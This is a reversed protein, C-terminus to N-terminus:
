KRSRVHRRKRAVELLGQVASQRQGILTMV